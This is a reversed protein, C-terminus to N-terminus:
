SDRRASSSATVGDFASWPHREVNSGRLRTVPAREAAPVGGSVAQPTEGRIRPLRLTFVTGRNLESSVEIDGGAARVLDRAQYAGMGMGKFGKTTDFPRFLRERVFAPDMGCGTDAVAVIAEDGHETLSIRITGDAPTADQANRVIHTLASTLKERNMSVWVATPPLELEPVPKRDSCHRRVDALVKAVDARTGPEPRSAGNLHCLIRNLRDIGARVTTMADDFFDPRHRFRQANSVVLEQQAIVNKLDHMLFASLKSMTEFQRTEALKEQALAQALVAAVQRGATKLIDHDEFNMAPFGFPKRLVVFGQLYGQCDLPVSISQEPLLRDEPEGFSRGYREPAARYEDSDVVWGTSALFSALPHDRRYSAEWEPRQGLTAICDYHGPERAVWLGGETAGVIRALGQLANSALPGLDATRGLIQTLRLWEERYDYKSRFFHKILFVRFRARAKPSFLGAVLAGVSATLFVGALPLGWPAGSAVMLYATSTTVLLYGAAAILTAASFAIRRSVILEREWLRGARRKVDM